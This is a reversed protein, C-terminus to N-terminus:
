MRVPVKANRARHKWDSIYTIGRGKDHKVASALAEKLGNRLRNRDDVEKLIKDLKVFRLIRRRFPSLSDLSPYEVSTICTGAVHTSLEKVEFKKDGVCRVQRVSILGLENEKGV